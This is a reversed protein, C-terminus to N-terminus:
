RRTKRGGSKKKLHLKTLLSRSAFEILAVTYGRFKSVESKKFLVTKISRSEKFYYPINIWFKSFILIFVSGGGGTRAKRTALICSCLICAAQCSGFQRHELARTVCLTDRPSPHTQAAVAPSTTYARLNLGVTPRRGRAGRTCTPLSHYMGERGVLYYGLIHLLIALWSM